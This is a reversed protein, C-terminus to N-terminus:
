PLLIAKLRGATKPIFTFSYRLLIGLIMKSLHWDSLILWPSSVITTIINIGPVQLSESLYKGWPCCADYVIAQVDEDKLQVLLDDICAETMSLEELAMPILDTGTETNHHYHFWKEYNRFEAGLAEFKRRSDEDAYYIVHFGLRVLESVVGITPNIHGSAGPLNFFVIKVSM